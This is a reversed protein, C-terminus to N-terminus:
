DLLLNQARMKGPLEAADLDSTWENQFAKKKQGGCCWM